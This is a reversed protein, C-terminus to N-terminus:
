AKSEESISQKYGTKDSTWCRSVTLKAPDLPTAIGLSDRSARTHSIYFNAVEQKNRWFFEATQAFDIFHGPVM